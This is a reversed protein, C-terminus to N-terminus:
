AVHTPLFWTSLPLPDTSGWTSLPLPDTSGGERVRGRERARDKGGEERGGEERGQLCHHLSVEDDEFGGPLAV